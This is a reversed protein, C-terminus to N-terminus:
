VNYAISTQLYVIRGFYARVFNNIKSNIDDQKNRKEVADHM